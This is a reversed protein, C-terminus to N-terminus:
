SWSPTLLMRVRDSLKIASHGGALVDGSVEWEERGKRQTLCQSYVNCTGVLHNSKARPETCNTLIVSNAIAKWM